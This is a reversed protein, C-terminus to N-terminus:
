FQKLQGVLSIGWKGGLFLHSRKKANELYIISEGIKIVCPFWTKPLLKEAPWFFILLRVHHLRNGLAKEKSFFLHSQNGGEHPRFPFIQIFNFPSSFVTPTLFLPLPFQISFITSTHLLSGGLLPGKMMEHPNTTHFLLCKM